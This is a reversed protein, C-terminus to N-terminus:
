LKKFSAIDLSLKYNETTNQVPSLINFMLKIKQLDTYFGSSVANTNESLISYTGDKIFIYFNMTYFIKGNEYTIHRLSINNQDKIQVTWQWYNLHIGMKTTTTSNIENVDTFGVSLTGINYDTVPVQLVLSLKTM